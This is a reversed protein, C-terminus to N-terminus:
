TAHQVRSSGSLIMTVAGLLWIPVAAAIAILRPFHSACSGRDAGSRFAFIVRLPVLVRRSEARSPTFAVYQGDLLQRSTFNKLCKDCSFALKHVEEVSRCFHVIALCFM